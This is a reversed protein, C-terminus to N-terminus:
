EKYKFYHFEAIGENEIFMGGYVGTFPSNSIEISLHKVLGEGIYEKRRDKNLYYFHFKDKKAEIGIVIDREGYAFTHIEEIDDVVKKMYLKLDQNLGIEMHHRQDIYLALGSNGGHNILQTEFNCCYECQRVGLFMPAGNSSLSKGNGYLRLKGNDLVMEDNLFERITNYQYGLHDEEFTDTFSNKLQKEINLPSQYSTKAFGDVVIPWGNQWTVPMLITERGLNHRHKIPRTALSVIWWNGVHDEILDGHGVSQLLEKSKDRNSVVPTIPCKEYPGYLSISRQMTIMHGERTGGEACMLYYYGNIKYIHPGETDRGGCGKSIVIPPNRLAGTEICIECQFIANEGNELGAYQIYTHGDEFYFSPDIGKIDVWIPNSFGEELNSSTVYFTGSEVSTVIVYFMGDHYRITPAFVGGSNKAQHVDIQSERTLVHGIQEWNVLNRSHFLPIGPLFEFSSTVLYYDNDVKCISPDPHFGRIVPNVYTYNVM